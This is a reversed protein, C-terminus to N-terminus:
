EPLRIFWKNNMRAFMAHNRWESIPEGKLMMVQALWLRPSADTPNDSAALRLEREASDLDWAALADM